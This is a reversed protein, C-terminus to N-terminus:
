SFVFLAPPRCRKPARRAASDNQAPRTGGVELEDAKDDSPAHMYQPFRSQQPKGHM